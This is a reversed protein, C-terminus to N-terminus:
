IRRKRTLAPIKTRPVEIRQVHGVAAAVLALTAQGFLVRVDAEMGDKRMREILTVALLSHGGLEFFHDHRGVREVKLLEAWLSALRIEMEGVPAEYLGTVFAGSDPVPLAKRDLKGNPTLPLADLRVYAAPVMYEPLQAQLHARLGGTDPSTDPTHTTYYAVLRKEGPIDERALVVTEKVAEHQALKAEIEGLEIRFGRIKVQDDNRGLYEINGDPLYRGLDGTKYMRANQETSFPDRLFREATLDDRNLYGRAVGAGGIYIEGPVGLPVPQGHEDLLYFQTNAVPKGIHAAFGDERAMSVWSSYTTTESPGYLNCLRKVNTQQFLSDVLSRKLAEGAVNVTDVGDSLGGSELLAKLASPVTNILSIDHTGQQLELVNTVVEIRGGCTLPAFCEYVALDFNLSTSFLTKALTAADFSRHAWTLFNVTNRHEIMVGKPLGTSGSTYILYALHSSTLGEIELNLVSEDQWVDSDLDIVPVSTEALLGRTATQALVAAPVSDALMYAIRDAPYAPDLPVYGGGAKLIALLGVVMDLGREVCIVVRADPQVGQKRLYHALRNARENLERYSLCQKGHLVAAADPTRRVQAEFLGHITQELPYDAETANFGHLRQHEADGLLAIESVVMRADAVMARLMRELYGLYREMTTKDFLATAYELSGQICGDVEGLDLSVDFKATWGASGLGEITLDGLTLEVGETNQWSLMAQFVASHSLSRVPKVLEVVQEFPLDQHAQASLTQAKVRQLLTEVSPQGSVDIPLALTNVFFGILGEVEVRTRNAVPSGIVVTEQGSLRGLVAAWGALVTMYLTTGHRQSLAKLNATLAEDFAVPIAAGAYNQQAPRPRDVPLMLVAPADALAVKWYASQTKLVEGSLWRRQWVAYDAYQVPLVPLPDDQGSRYAEYLAVLERTLVGMSWGDSVIHHMTVLLVHEREGLRILRGRILPGHEVDFAETAEQAVLTNLADQVEAHASLDIIQLAFGSDEAGIRQLAPQEPVQVFTTRLAEHRAVIRDLAHQLANRDLDGTLRLGAPLHYAASAGEIRTLFLLRQQAFSLPLPEDRTVAVIEPLSSRVSRSVAQALTSLQSHTFLESLALEVGLRLRVQSILRMALLSHGGLEFFRDHRGVRDLGLLAQWIQALVSEVDGQPAEYGYVNMSGSEPAPLAKRDLKGNPTQPMTELRVYAVPVMYEPLQALMFGRLAEISPEDQEAQVRYYAVLRKECPSDERVVVVAESVGQCAGLVVEIEGLEIRLGRIKVQGDNRSLYDIRGDPWYRAIDGTRYMRADTQASFPDKLFREATLDDRNMYGRAVGAGGIYIEGAVGIPVPKGHPDLLYFRTNAIPRGISIQSGDAAQDVVPTASSWITTETPGYVNFLTKVQGAVRLALDAPLAEGGCLATLEPAGQWGSELLMRWSAPTAQALTAGSSAIVEALLQGDRGQDRSVLVVRAGCILPLYLELGAIDFGLTTLALMRDAPEVGVTDRMACLLNVVNRHEVMVGKPKGTSGSTYIVYALHSSTLGSVSPNAISQDQWTDNDLNIVPMTTDGLLDRTGTHVLLAVPASDELMYALRDNPYAPDLPVYAAGAKLIGLLGVLMALGREVCIAVRDDPDIGLALLHHAVQNAQGNLEAYSLQQDGFMVAVADPSTEVRDQFLQQITQEQPYAVQTANWTDLLQRREASPVSDLEYLPTHPACELAAVLTELAAQMYEGIRQADIGSVAQVALSFGEGEDDVALSLPYNTREEGGLGEIGQWGALMQPTAESASHRYNLLASFLPTPAAVGSCRQALALSAHEHGLLATLRGHTAQVAACASQEGLSVRLPLTNIFMGLARDAGEGGQMRGLLVTGFVVDDRASVCGLVQAWALHVVSAPSVGLTRAQVRLRRSLGAEVALTVEEINNGDGQVDQRGFPLTPEDIDGLMERFFAEHEQESVGLRAQAVYNRYPVAEGLRHAQGLLHAQMEHQVVEMATHDLAMHHFLLMAVWRQNAVDEAFALRLMPAQRVDLRYHRADFHEHLQAAIDGAGPGPEFAECVLRAQRWVIQLPEDLGEWALSTRLIDHRDIVHHLARTFDELRERSDFAFQTQLVYPDGKEAMLHHYLIGAQLPALPYIDQVNGAGGPVNAVVRDITQQSLVALPLMAPTIRDCGEVIANAPVVVDRHGGVAAALALLTPQSFLVRVDVSLGVQRMREILRMALLSHGGLEFFHDHRGVQEVKLLDAWLRALTQEIEGQPAEYAESAYAQAQPAPLAKRDVKGNLTLAFAPLMVFATPVMYEALTASLQERLWAVSLTADQRAVVYAVLRKEGPEDTRVLVVADKVGACAVLKAEIEGPEIRFGRIKVQDDNRGLCELDGEPLWRGLDGTRYLLAASEPSFPDAIFKEATLEPRNLYGKAVGSGGIYIEGVVGLPLLQQRADLVYVRTNSIPGGIPVSEADPAVAKVEHTTAYTTTETPGYCHVLRLGPALSLLRRFSAVDAREGGCLLIRLGGIAHPILQVYQNFIATTVFLVTAGSESLVRAFRSPELLTEHDIVVVQGGNLLAGWVDMTSADFAPNSAFAIRDHENFDAYGNNIVLRNIARHPVRVGKPQGTSGSTYMIYAITESSQALAPDHTAESETDLTDLDVRRVGDPAVETSFTLVISAQCDKLMFGQRELSANRDLPVYTAACKLIALQSTVLDISRPLLIAVFDDPQVGLGILYHALRNARRNLAGYTIQQHEHVVAVAQPTRAVQAEFLALVTEDQLCDTNTANFEVLLQQQEAAPLIQLRYLPAAPSCELAEALSELAANMYGCVRQAGVGALVLVTLAFDEGLDDVSLALPYNTREEGGLVEIGQWASHPDAADPQAGSHRYNLLASFLPTPAIVGSCRQALALSAHEHGLLATLRAHIAQLGEKVGQDGVSVRLPLTNIFMGLARDAGAGGQMRGMLVTGFVVEDHGSVRSLVQAWALHHLSAASVGSQRALRRLRRSLGRDLLLRAEEIDSGDAQVDQLGFPLTSEGIDGLMERFFTEHQERSVGLRAQAVYNRYPVADGLLDAQGLLHAQMERQVVDLATHDLAMHHFLLMAVWRQNPADHAFAIRMLPAQTVDLRYHRADFRSHLQTAIDGAQPDLVLEELGLRAERWVVQLPEDFGEWLVATRLIDHRDIVSQLAQAFGELRGRSDFGFQAQLVYPDGTQAAMHHYLIGEQLPALPYIDQVNRAGDPVTAVIREIAAQDLNVLPLMTPTIHECDSPILNVPVSIEKGSGVAAALAALTPQSFLVRVDASLGAQRMREILSVALLSHGGLEFFHDHRGVREIKLLDQWIQALTTEIEGQPAEYDRYILADLDPAPLAKRDLKGNPTLPLADLRVYAAPVMYEPLQAQLHARLGGTDPSTDPMHTTYYAVLRKEGPIDERALVVTEKVAEHQALKAEIEGLEIRFGRIKVQDDNRGLYEINGDPRYRGLDGTKYMRANQETSFPDRLFREATLDDRNLYGRAVGAGGIYIEGPVGLPVPQGHEDLLYFQTNAVPKGIHAAFGDERAMSVWSSYTTTESPGYLNCLRKVRTQAFLSDVLSRKLAEGAVNVTDVGDSLGGSELLAKLASPVTNILSIDHEGQQLELVNSVVEIRGGCTLPAFCEYVALDFNLSTSFLTKALTAADFSRHAWTLFNVTNRHEIMVGKPLGTSGSTYILYALHSSTLGEIELNLVSEDQWVDSDLDIVPVSTEALLGRTATQALVAAPASDTLMYAIRDAPYAPDLPVYGGGAKLIGLLGVVMDVGREVCIAVRADPQVGQKRLYHALRNARQNLERYSLCQKGHLVAAADPTRQVQAEFLGHITQEQPYDAETANFTVLLQEREAAPVISLERLSADPAQELATVLNELAMHMYGCIRQAGIGPVAQVSLSFGEGLDDVSLTLPYNTREESALVELGNWAIQAEKSLSPAASHRYNLLASFLPLPAAVGSCRQALALSAHEHGLLATLRAHTAKVGASVCQLGVDVRLPLTNIFMGLARDAGEGGQMRGMLVTGFVVEQKGCVKGLVQAWALHVLSAASVGLQRAQARLRRSLDAAIDLRAEEIHSGDGQVDQVGFPLTPEDIDGLMERFFAEHEERSVGLRAQAVYNRYPLAEGLQSEQGLLHAQMEHQVVDLAMHDLAMHHFLLMGVWRQNSADHAFAIRMLPAQTVDLRYNRADFRSHLQTAVDGAQPDLVLEELGLQAHRWVVQVPEDLGEWVVSTRLIDHRDIVSQLARSFDDLRTRNSAVFLAQLVYPDGQEAAIHHYLIGEQLPALPYIDQVNCAGDPVTAVIREIAAQDLNVLPLMTPTIHECDSPILNVPVSIEKGSGVAAALAALTPQSFLVRVDASLGAQRMRGILSVALLSHGGLEFFQDHRGVLEVKLLDQWIQALTTEIEGQPAEYDRYILANLDPAPLAKRDLKGNPTLPLADLRVYAVPVMYDPLQTQLHARLADIDPTEDASHRTFYAVLRKEGPIDERALVVTEKVAEHQALKAEIEGLEIRFGRIKVQDDNRGLYEINGDPRYRGLDGTKYMRANQETSFPDRLFRETTLDDRNLYGRAVGAGGIYIEGPVGLPVPQGHEDLLYFQTNAVPKGIHAAFGDERAMSVWSSYTTTESPGYLNCLRKVNTQQFLSDVLSRKLAEGAVNVTDVGDSLGGSELLAKLASPVTNILSIDHEGQQLELVNSVVEIRGGCTLPAFCEYVALDFNLSTSFLTKALTAADFSHHAWTLFNV